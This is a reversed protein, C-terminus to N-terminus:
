RSAISNRAGTNVPANDVSLSVCNTWPIAHKQLAEEMKQFIADATSCNPGSTPCMDLFRHVVKKTDSDYVRVTLPNMKERGAIIYLVNFTHMLQFQTHKNARQSFTQTNSHTRSLTSCTIVQIMQDMQSWHLHVPGWRWLSNRKSILPWQKM